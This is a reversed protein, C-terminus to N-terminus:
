VTSIQCGSATLKNVAASHNVCSFCSFYGCSEDMIAKVLTRNDARRFYRENWDNCLARLQDPTYSIIRGLLADANEGSPGTCGSYFFNYEDIISYLADNVPGPNWVVAQGTQPDVSGTILSNPNVPLSKPKPVADRVLKVFFRIVIFALFFAGIFYIIKRPENLYKQVQQELTM